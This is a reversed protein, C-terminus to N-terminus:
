FCQRDKKLEELTQAFPHLGQGLRRRLSAFAWLAGLLCAAALTGMGAVRWEPPLLALLALIGLILALLAFIVGFCALILVQVLRIKDERLELGLLEVRDRVTEAVVVSLRAATGSLDLDELPLRM